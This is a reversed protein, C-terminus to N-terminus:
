LTMMPSVSFSACSRSAQIRSCTPFYMGASFASLVTRLRALPGRTPVGSCIASFSPWIPRSPM